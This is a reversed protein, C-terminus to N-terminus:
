AGGGDLDFNRVLGSHGCGCCVAASDNDWEHDGNAATTVDTGDRCLRVWVTAAIDIEDSSGCSPCKMGFDNAIDDNM